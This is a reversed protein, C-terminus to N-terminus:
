GGEMIFADAPLGRAVCNEELKLSLAGVCVCVCVCVCVHIRGQLASKLPYSQEPAGDPPKVCIHTVGSIQEFSQSDFISRQAQGLVLSLSLQVPLRIRLAIIFHAAITTVYLPM